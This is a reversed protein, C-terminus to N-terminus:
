RVLIVFAAQRAPEAQREWPRAYQFFIVARGKGSARFTWTEAGPSGMLGPASQRFRKGSFRVMAEDPLAALGWRYGTTPNSELVLSFESGAKVTVPVTPDSFGGQTRDTVMMLRNGLFKGAADFDFAFLASGIEECARCGNRLVYGVHFRSGGGALSESVPTETGFRDGPWISVAPYREVLGQYVPDNKLEEEAPIGAGDVDIRPPDGNVLLIGQNENARFPYTVYAIDVKGTERFSRLWAENGMTGTFRVAEPSAGEQEMVGVLCEGLQPFSLSGCRAHVKDMFAPGVEWVAGAGVRSRAKGCAHADGASMPVAFVAVLLLLSLRSM